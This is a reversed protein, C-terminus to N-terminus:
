AAAVEGHHALAEAYNLHLAFDSGPDHFPEAELRRLLALAEEIRGLFRLALAVNIEARRKLAANDFRGCCAVAREALELAEEWDDISTLTSSLNLLVVALPAPSPYRELLLLNAYHHHLVQELRGQRGHALAAAHGALFRDLPHARDQRTAAAALHELTAVAAEPEGRAVDVYAGIMDALTKGRADRAKRVLIRVEDLTGAADETEGARAQQYALCLGAWARPAASAGEAFAQVALRRSHPPDSVFM